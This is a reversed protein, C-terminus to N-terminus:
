SNLAPEATPRDAHTCQTDCLMRLAKAWLQSGVSSRSAAEPRNDDVQREDGAEDLDVGREVGGDVGLAVGELCPLSTLPTPPTVGLRRPLESLGYLFLYNPGM